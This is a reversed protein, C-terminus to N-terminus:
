LFLSVILILQSFRGSSAKNVNQQLDASSFQPLNNLAAINCVNLAAPVVLFGGCGSLGPLGTVITFNQTPNKM